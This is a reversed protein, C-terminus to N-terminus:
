GPPDVVEFVMMEKEDTLERHAEQSEGTLLCHYSTYLCSSMLHHHVQLGIWRLLAPPLEVHCRHAHKEPAYKLVPTVPSLSQLGEKKIRGGPARVPCERAVAPISRASIRPCQLSGGPVPAKLCSARCSCSARGPCAPQSDSHHWEQWGDYPTGSKSLRFLYATGRQM